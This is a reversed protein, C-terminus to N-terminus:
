TKQTSVTESQTKSFDFQDKELIPKTQQADEFTKTKQPSNDTYNGFPKTAVTKIPTKAKGSSNRMLM